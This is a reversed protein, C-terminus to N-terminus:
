GEVLVVWHLEEKRSLGEGEQVLYNRIWLPAMCLRNDRMGLPVEERALTHPAEM